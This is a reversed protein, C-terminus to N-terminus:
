GSYVTFSPFGVPGLVGRLISSDTVVALLARPASLQKRQEAFRKRWYANLPETGPLLEMLMAVARGKERGTRDLLDMADYLQQNDIENQRGGVLVCLVHSGPDHAIQLM